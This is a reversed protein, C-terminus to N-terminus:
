AIDASYGIAVYCYTTGSENLQAAANDSYWSVSSNAWSLTADYHGQLQFESTSTAPRVMIAPTQYSTGGQPTVIVLLPTFNFELKNMNNNGSRGNGAYTGSVVRAVHQTGNLWTKIATIGYANNHLANDIKENDANVDARLIQDTAEYQSLQYHTTMRSAM